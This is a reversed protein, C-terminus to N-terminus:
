KYWHTRPPRVSYRGKVITKGKKHTIADIRAIYFDKNTEDGYKGIVSGLTITEGAALTLEFKNLYSTRRM